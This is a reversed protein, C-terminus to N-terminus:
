RLQFVLKQRVWARVPQGEYTAPRFRWRRAADQAAADFEGPPQATDVVVQEVSGERSVLVRVRVWGEVGRERAGPPYRPPPNILPTPPTDVLAEDLVLQSPDPMALEASDLAGAVLPGATPGLRFEDPTGLVPAAITSPLDLAPLVPRAAELEVPGAAQPTPREPPPPPPPPQPAAIVRPPAPKPPPAAVAPTRLAALAYILGGNIVVAVVVSFVVRGM